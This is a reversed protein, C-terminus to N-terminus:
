TSNGKEKKSNPNSYFIVKHICVFQVTIGSFKSEREESKSDSAFNIEYIARKSLVNRSAYVNELTNWSLNQCSFFFLEPM